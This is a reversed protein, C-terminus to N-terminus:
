FNNQNSKRSIPAKPAEKEPQNELPDPATFGRFQRIYNYFDERERFVLNNLGVIQNEFIYMYENHFRKYKKYSFYESNEDDPFDSSVLFFILPSTLQPPWNIGNKSLVSPIYNNDEGIINKMGPRGGKFTVYLTDGAAYQEGKYVKQVKLAMIRYGDAYRETGKLNYGAVVKIFYGEVVIEAQEFFEENSLPLNYPNSNNEITQAYLIAVSFLLTIFLLIAKKM